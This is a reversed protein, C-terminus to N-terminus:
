HVSTPTRTSRRRRNAADNKYFNRSCQKCSCHMLDVDDRHSIWTCATSIECRSSAQVVRWSPMAQTLQPDRGRGRRAGGAPRGRRSAPSGLQFKYKELFVFFLMREMIIREASSAGHGHLRAVATHDTSLAQQLLLQLPSLGWPEKAAVCASGQHWCHWSPAACHERPEM